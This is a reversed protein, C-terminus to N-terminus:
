FGALFALHAGVVLGYMGLSAFTGIQAIRHKRYKWLLWMFASAAVFKYLAFAPLSEAILHAMLPNAEEAHGLRVFEITLAGDAVNLAGLVLLAIGRAGARSEAQM